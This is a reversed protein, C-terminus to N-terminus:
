PRLTCCGRLYAGAGPMTGILAARIGYARDSMGDSCEQRELLVDFGAGVGGFTLLTADEASAEVRGHLQTEREPVSFVPSENLSLSWFPETGSCRLPMPFGDGQGPQRALYDLSAWGRTEPLSVLGWGGSRRVIEVGTEDPALTAVLSASAEPGARVNLVDNAGVGRVDYLAPLEGQAGAASAALLMFLAAAVRM